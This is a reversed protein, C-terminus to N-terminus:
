RADGLILDAARMALMMTPANTNGSTINPFSSADVVRLGPVGHVRLRADAVSDSDDNGMRCTCTPHFVTSARARFEDLLADADMTEFGAIKCGSSVAALAPTKALEQLIRGGRIAADRDEQTALSNPRIAPTDRHDASRIRVHGRSTPRSPQASLLYGSARDIVVKGEPTVEYSAPNCFLQMDPGRAQAHSRVFGGVQNVPVALPGRRTLAYRLGAGIRGFHSGLIANLTTQTARFQYSVALHDQLGEGVQPLDRRVEIGHRRLLDAPGIGSLQLLQPSSIAGASLIVERRAEVRVIKGQREYHLGSARAGEFQLAMVHAQTRLTVNRRKLAPRLFADAASWRLGGRVNSRYYSLGEAGEANMDDPTAHGAERAAALFHKSFPNMQDSLDQVWVPGGGSGDSRTEMRGYVDRVTKWDWGTAGAAAWDDFDHSLGRVYAMANISSSGGIVRGRPWYCARGNLAEEADTRYGWNLAPNAYNVAYGVPVKIWFRRDSGGAELVLVSHRGCTSLRDALVCGASGAGVIIYDFAITQMQDSESRAQLDQRSM